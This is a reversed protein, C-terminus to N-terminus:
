QKSEHFLLPALKICALRRRVRVTQEIKVAPLGPPPTPLPPTRPDPPSSKIGLGQVSTCYTSVGLLEQSREMRLIMSRWRSRIYVAYTGLFSLLCLLLKYMGTVFRFSFLKRNALLCCRRIHVQVYRCVYVCIYTCRRPSCPGYPVQRVRSHIICVHANEWQAGALGAWGAHSSKAAGWESATALFFFFFFTPPAGQASWFHPFDKKTKNFNKKTAPYRCWTHIYTHVYMHVYWVYM